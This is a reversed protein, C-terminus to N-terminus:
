KSLLYIGLCLLASLIGVLPITFQDWISEIKKEKILQNIYFIHHEEFFCLMLKKQYPQIEHYPLFHLIYGIQKLLKQQVQFNGSQIIEQILPLFLPYNLKWKIRDYNIFRIDTQQMEREFLHFYNVLDEVTQITPQSSTSKGELQISKDYLRKSDSNGLIEYAKQIQKFQEFYVPNNHKDPHYIHALKRFARKIDTSSATATLGLVAYWNQEVM